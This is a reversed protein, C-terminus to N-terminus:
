GRMTMARPSRAMWTLGTSVPSNARLNKSWKLRSTVELQIAREGRVMVFNPSYADASQAEVTM